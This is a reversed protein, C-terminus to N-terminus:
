KKTNNNLVGLDSPDPIREENEIGLLVNWVHYPVEKKAVFWHDDTSAM